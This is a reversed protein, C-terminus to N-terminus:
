RSEGKQRLWADVLSEGRAAASAYFVDGIPKKDFGVLAVVVSEGTPFWCIIRVAVDPDFPHAVRWLEHRRAQRVRKFTASEETPKAPLDTLAQLLATATALIRGGQGEARTLWRDFEEPWDVIM